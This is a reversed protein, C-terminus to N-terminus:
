HPHAPVGLWREGAPVDHLVVAGAGIVAGEGISVNPAVKVGAYLLALPGVKVGGTLLVGPALNAYEGIECNHEIVCGAHIVAGPYIVAGHEIVVGANILCGDMVAAFNITAQPHVATFLKRHLAELQRGLALRGGPSSCCVAVPRDSVPLDEIAKICGVIKVETLRCITEIYGRQAAGQDLLVIGRPGTM